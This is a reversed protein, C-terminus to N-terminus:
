RLVDQPPTRNKTQVSKSHHPAAPNMTFGNQLLFRINNICTSVMQNHQRMPSWLEEYLRMSAFVTMLLHVTILVFGPHHHQFCSPCPSSPCFSLIWPSVPQDIIALKSGNQLLTLWPSGNQLLFRINNICTSVMQNHQRMPSWLEEYLRMSAFVTMLLHVTILVFGPHHHQFCSPCPSSPCFSLIWPSVPQDIIALKSGNQLLTLWPSGNQLLFRINNASTPPDHHIGGRYAVTHHRRTM